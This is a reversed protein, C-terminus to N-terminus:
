KWNQQPLAVSTINTVALCGGNYKYVNTRGISDYWYGGAQATCDQLVNSAADLIQYRAIAGDFCAAPATGNLRTGIFIEYNPLNTMTTNTIPLSEGNVGIQLGAASFNYTFFTWGLSAAGTGIASGNRWRAGWKWGSSNITYFGNQNTAGGSFGALFRSSQYNRPLALMRISMGNTGIIGTGSADFPGLTEFGNYSLGYVQSPPANSRVFRVVVLGSGGAAGNYNMTGGSGGGGGGTNPAGPSGAGGSYSPGGGSGGGGKGGANGGGGGYGGGGGGGGYYAVSAVTALACQVGAGGPGYGGSLKAGIASAGGGSGGGYAGGPTGAAGDFGYQWCGANGAYNTQGGSGGAGGNSGGGGSGGTGGTVASSGSAAGYGGGLAVMGFIRSARGTGGCYAPTGPDVQGNVGGGGGAGVAVPYTGPVINTASRVVVGGAGGGGGAYFAFGGGGGGGVLLADMKGGTLVTLTGSNTFTHIEFIDNTTVDGGLAYPTPEVVPPAPPPVYPVAAIRCGYQTAGFCAMVLMVIPILCLKKM